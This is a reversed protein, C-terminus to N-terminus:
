SKKEQWVQDAEHATKGILKIVFADYEERSLRFENAVVATLDLFGRSWSPMRAGNRVTDPDESYYGDDEQKRIRLQEALIRFYVPGKNIAGSFWLRWWVRSFEKPFKKM